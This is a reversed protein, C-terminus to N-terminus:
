ALGVPFDIEGTIPLNGIQQEMEEDFDLEAIVPATPAVYLCPMVFDLSDVDTGIICDYLPVEPLDLGDSSASDECAGVTQSEFPPIRYSHWVAYAGFAVSLFVVGMSVLLFSGWEGFLSQVILYTVITFVTMAFYRPVASLKV